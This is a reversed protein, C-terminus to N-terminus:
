FSKNENKKTSPFWTNLFIRLRIGWERSMLISSIPYMVERVESDINPVNVKENDEIQSPMVKGLDKKMTADESM